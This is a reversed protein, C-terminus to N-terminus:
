LLTKLLNSVVIEPLDNTLVKLLGLKEYEETASRILNEDITQLDLEGLGRKKLREIRTIEDLHVWIARDPKMFSKILEQPFSVKKVRALVVTSFYSRDVLIYDYSNELSLIQKELLLWASFYFWINVGISPNQSRFDNLYGKLSPLVITKINRNNLETCIAQVITSKGVGDHGDFTIVKAM